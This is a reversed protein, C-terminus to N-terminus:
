EERLYVAQRGAKFAPYCAALLGIVFATGLVLVFDTWEFAVPYATIMFGDPLGIWGFYIQGLCILTGLSVGLIAGVAALLLGESLFVIRVQKDGIGMSKLIAIDRKKELVLMYLCGTLNFSAILLVFLLIAYVMWKEGSLVMFLTQNQEYRNAVKYNSGMIRSAAKQIDAVQAASKAKIEVASIKGRQGLFRQVVILPLLAYREDLDKQVHFMGQPKTLIASLSEEPNLSMGINPKPYYINLESFPNNVDISLNNAIGLGLIVPISQAGLNKWGSEGAIMFSDMGSVQFWNNDVGKVVAARQESENSLLAMDEITESLVQVGPITTLQEKQSPTLVFFKGKVPTIKVSPNFSTYMEKITHDLGNFVSFLIIMAAAAVAIAGMSIWSIINIAQVSKKAWFYRWAIRFVLKM